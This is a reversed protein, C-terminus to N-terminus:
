FLFIDTATKPLLYEKGTNFAYTTMEPFDEFFNGEYRDILEHEIVMKPATIKGIIKTNKNRSLAVIGNKNLENIAISLPSFGKRNIPNPLTNPAYEFLDNIIFTSNDKALYHLIHTKSRTANLDIKNQRIIFPFMEYDLSISASRLINLDSMHGKEHYQLMLVILPKFDEDNSTGVAAMSIPTMTASFQDVDCGLEIFKKLKSHKISVPFESKLIAQLLTFDGMAGSVTHNPKIEGKELQTLWDNIQKKSFENSM